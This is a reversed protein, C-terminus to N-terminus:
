RTEHKHQDDFQKIGTYLGCHVSNGIGFVAQRFPGLIIAARSHHQGNHQTTRDVCEDGCFIIQLRKRAKCIGQNLTRRGVSCSGHDQSWIRTVGWCCLVYVGGMAWADPLHQPTPPLKPSAHLHRNMALCLSVWGMVKGMSLLFKSIM